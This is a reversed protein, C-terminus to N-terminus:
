ILGHEAFSYPEGEGIIFHDLMRIDLQGLLDKLQQTLHRDATSPDSIGSPHNHALVVAAAQHDLARKLVVRPYVTASDITGRFLLEYALVRHQTDLFIVSFVENPEPVLKIRLFDRVDHPRQLKPGRQFMRGELIMLARQIIWDDNPVPVPRLLVNNSITTLSTPM